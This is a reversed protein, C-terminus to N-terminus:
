TTGLLGTLAQRQHAALGITGVLMRKRPRQKLVLAEQAPGAVLRLHEPQPAALSPLRDAVVAVSERLAQQGALGAQEM